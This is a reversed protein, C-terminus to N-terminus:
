TFSAERATENSRADGFLKTCINEFVTKRLFYIFSYIFLHVFLYIFLRYRSPKLHIVTKVMM